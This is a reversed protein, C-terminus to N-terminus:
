GSSDIEKLGSKAILKNGIKEKNRENIEWVFGGFSWGKEGSLTEIEVWKETINDVTLENDSINIIKVTTGYKLNAVKSSSKDPSERVLLNDVWVWGDSPPNFTEKKPATKNIQEPQNSENTISENKEKKCYVNLIVIIIFLIFSSYKKM